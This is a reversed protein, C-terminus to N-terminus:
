LDDQIADKLVDGLEEENYYAQATDFLRYGEKIASYVVKKIKEKPILFVGFGAKPMKVGNNLELYQM